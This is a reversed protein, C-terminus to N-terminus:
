AIVKPIFQYGVGRVAVIFRPNSPDDRLKRRIRGILVDITRDSSEWDRGRLLDLLRERSLVRGSHAILAHLLRFEGDTLAVEDDQPTFLRRRAPEMRWGEFELPHEQAAGIARAHAVRRVLNKVRAVLERPNFPKAIYDDAGLELGIIRDVADTRSGTILVIGIESRARLERTLTLGDAGPLRIDLMIADVEQRALIDRAAEASSAESIGYGENALYGSLLSRIVPDDDVVLIQAKASM